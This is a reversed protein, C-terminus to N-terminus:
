FFTWCIRRARFKLSIGAACVGQLMAWLHREGEGHRFGHEIPCIDLECFPSRGPVEKPQLWPLTTSTISELVVEDLNPFKAMIDTFLEFDRNNATIDLQAEHVAKYKPYKADFRSRPAVVVPELRSQRYKKCCYAMYEQRSLPRESLVDSNYALSRVYQRHVPHNAIARLGAFDKHHLFFVTALAHRIGVM